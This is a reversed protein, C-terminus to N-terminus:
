ILGAARLAAFATENISDLNAARTGNAADDERWGTTDKHIKVLAAALPDGMGVIEDALYHLTHGATGDMSGGVEPRDALRRLRAAIQQFTM